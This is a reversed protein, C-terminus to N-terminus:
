IRPTLSGESPRDPIGSRGSQSGDTARAAPEEGTAQGTQRPVAPQGPEPPHGPVPAPHVPAQRAPAQRPILTQRPGDPLFPLVSDIARAAFFAALASPAVTGPRPDLPARVVPVRASEGAIAALAPDRATLLILDADARALALAGALLAPRTLQDAILGPPDASGTIDLGTVTSILRQRPGAFRLGDVVARMPAASPRMAPSHLGHPLGLVEAEVGMEAARRPLERIDPVPGALVHHAPGEHAAVTLGTGACLEAVTGPGAHLRAMAARGPTARIIEARHAALRAAEGFTLVGAWALGAIEGFSYGVALRPRLGLREVTGLTAMSASLVASHEAGTGALGPFLLAVRGAAGESVYGSGHGGPGAPSPGAGGIERVGSEAPQGRLTAAAARAREALQAPDRAVIAARARLGPFVPAAAMELAFQGLAASPLRAAAIAITDLTVALDGRDAGRVAIVWDRDAAEGTMAEGGAAKRSMTGWGTTGWSASERSAAEGTM